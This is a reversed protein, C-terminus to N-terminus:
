QNTNIYYIVANAIIQRGEETYHETTWNQDIFYEDKVANLNDIIPIGRCSFYDKLIMRNQEILFILDEGVLKEAKQTNEALLNFILKWKRKKSLDIIENFDEIRPNTLTDIQFGYGKIYHCALETLAQNKIGNSEVYGQVAMASDWEIVNKYQFPYPFRLDDKAWKDKYAKNQELKSKNMFHKFSLMTRALIPPHYRIFLLSKQLAPELSSHIWRANFSRLNLTVVVTEIKSSNSIERLLYKFIGAHGAPKTLHNVIKNPIGDNVFESITKKETDDKHMATNSSEAVYLIETEEPIESLLKVLDSHKELDKEYFFYHYAINVALVSTLLAIVKYLIEKKSPWM